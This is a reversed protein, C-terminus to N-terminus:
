GRVEEVMSQLLAVDRIVLAHKTREVIGRRALDNMVRAVTERTTSVRSAIDGHVPVPAIRGQNGNRVFACVQRLLEAHVRSQAALTSLDMIREDASRIIRALRIMVRLAIRPHDEIVQLFARQPLSFTLTETLAVASASRPLGDLAALEGFHDGEALDDFAVERGSVSYNVIRVRGRAIFFTDTSHSDKDIIQEHPSFPRYYGVQEVAALAGCDLEKFLNVGSLLNTGAHRTASSPALLPNCASPNLM